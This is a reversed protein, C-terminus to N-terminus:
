CDITQGTFEPLTLLDDIRALSVLLEKPLGKAKPDDCMRKVKELDMYNVQIKEGVDLHTKVQDLFDNAVYTYVFHEIKAANQFVDVLKWSAFTLGTEELLERQAAQLTTEGAVDHRGGPISFYPPLNPQEEELIVIKGDKIAIIQLTDPRRLMEFTQFSGDFMQQPWQYVDFIQGKFVRTAEKPILVAREPVVKKLSTPELARPM